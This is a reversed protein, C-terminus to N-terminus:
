MGYYMSDPCCSCIRDLCDQRLAEAKEQEFIADYVAQGKTDHGNWGSLQKHLPKERPSIKKANM